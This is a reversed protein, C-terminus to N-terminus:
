KAYMYDRTLPRGAPEGPKYLLIQNVNMSGDEFCAASAALALLWTRYTAADVSRLCEAARTQLREVWARCTLAYHPRLNEVDLVEFGAREASRIADPLRPIESGPFVKNRLFAAELGERTTQPRIIGHNLLMGGKRLLEFLRRFYSDLRRTGVHEFMGVSAIKDFPGELDRYDLLKISARPHLSREQIMAQAYRYQEASLTCGTSQARYKEVAHRCLAGWGCGVDLFSEGHSLRLKRCIHDMKAIQADDLSEAGPKFYACSYVLASDLFQKYFHTPQDYHFRVNRTARSRSQFWNELRFLSPLSFVTRAMRRFGRPARARYFHVAAVLDGEVAFEGRVFAMALSYPDAKLFREADTLGPIRLEFECDGEGRRMRSEHGQEAFLDRKRGGSVAAKNESSAWDDGFAACVQREKDMARM